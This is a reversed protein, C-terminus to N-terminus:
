ALPPFVGSKETLTEGVLAVTVAPADEFKVILVEGVFPKLEATLREHEPNGVPAFHMNEV